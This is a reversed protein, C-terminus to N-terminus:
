EDLSQRSVLLKDIRFGDMDVVEIRIDQWYVTEGSRPIHGFLYAVFGGLTQYPKDTEGPLPDLKLMECFQQIPIMGDILITGDERYVIDPDHMEEIQPIDGVLAELLDRLNVLGLVGGFEDIVFAIEYGTERMRELVSYVPMNEPVYLPELLCAEIDIGDSELSQSLLDTAKVFGVLNDLNGEIVPFYSFNVRKIKEISAEVPDNKDLWIVEPRPTILSEIRQDGLRFVRDVITDEIPEFVGM